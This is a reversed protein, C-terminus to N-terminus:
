YNFIVSIEDATEIRYAIFTDPFKHFLLYQVVCTQPWFGKKLKVGRKLRSTIDGVQAIFAPDMRQYPLDEIVGLFVVRNLKIVM